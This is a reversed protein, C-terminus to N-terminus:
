GNKLFLWYPLLSFEAVRLEVTLEMNKKGTIMRVKGPTAGCGM